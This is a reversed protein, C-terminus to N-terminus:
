RRMPTPESRRVRSDDELEKLRSSVSQVQRENATLDTTYQKNLIGIQDSLIQIRREIDALNAAATSSTSKERRDIEYLGTALAIFGAVSLVISLRLAMDGSRM